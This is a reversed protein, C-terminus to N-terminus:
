VQWMGDGQFSSSAKIHGLLRAEVPQHHYSTVLCCDCCCSDCGGACEGSCGGDHLVLLHAVSFVTTTDAVWGSACSSCMDACCAGVTVLMGAALILM